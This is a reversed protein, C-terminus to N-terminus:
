EALLDIMEDTRADAMRAEVVVTSGCTEWFLRGLERHLPHRLYEVLDSEGNFEIVAAFNYTKEGFSRHYGADVTVSRGVLARKTSPISRCAEQIALAFVRLQETTVGPKPNFLVIHSIM